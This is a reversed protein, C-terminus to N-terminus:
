SGTRLPIFASLSLGAVKNLRDPATKLMEEVSRNRRQGAIRIAQFSRKAPHQKEAAGKGAHRVPHYGCAGADITNKERRAKKRNVKRYRRM